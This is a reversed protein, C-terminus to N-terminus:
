YSSSSSQAVRCSRSRRDDWLSGVPMAHGLHRALRSWVTASAVLWMTIHFTAFFRQEPPSYSAVLWISSLSVLVLCGVIRDASTLLWYFTVALSVINLVWLSRSWIRTDPSPLYVLGLRAYSGFYFSQRKVLLCLAGHLDGHRLAPLLGTHSDKFCSGGDYGAAWGDYLTGLDPHSPPRTPDPGRWPPVITDYGYLASNVFPPGMYWQNARSDLYSWNGTHAVTGAVQLSLPTLLAALLAMANAAPVKRYLAIAGYLAGFMLVPYLYQLRMFASLGLLLGSASAVVPGRCEVITLCTLWLGNLALAAAPADSLSNFCAAWLFAIHPILAIPYRMFSLVTGTTPWVTSIFRAALIVSILVLGLNFYILSEEPLGLRYPLSAYLIM